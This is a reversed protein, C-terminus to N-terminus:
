FGLFSKLDGLLLEKTSKPGGILASSESIDLRDYIVLRWVLCCFIIWSAVCFWITVRLFNWLIKSLVLFSLTLCNQSSYTFFVGSRNLGDWYECDWMIPWFLLYPTAAGTPPVWIPLPGELLTDLYLRAPAWESITLKRWVFFSKFISWLGLFLISWSSFLTPRM